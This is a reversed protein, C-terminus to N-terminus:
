KSVNVIVEDLAAVVKVYDDLSTLKCGSACKHGGGNFQVAVPQVAIQKSRLEVRVNGDEYEAFFAWIPCDKVGSLTNVNSACYDTDLNNERIYSYPLTLYLVGHESKQYHSYIYGKFRLSKEDVEYIVNYINEADIGTAILKSAILYMKKRNPNYLFRGSDTMMGLFLPLAIEKNLELHNELLLDTILECASSCETKILEIVGFDEAKIHHDIKIIERANLVRQDDVRALNGCDVVIALSNKVIEDDVQDVEGVLSAFRAIGKGLAYVKKDPYSNRLANRLGIKSGICDGDPIVHGFICISDYEKIKNIIDLYVQEM